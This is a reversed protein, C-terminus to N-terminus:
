TSSKPSVGLPSLALAAQQFAWCETLLSIYPQTRCSTAESLGCIGWDLSPTLKEATRQVAM